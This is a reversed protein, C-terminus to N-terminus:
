FFELSNLNKSKTIFMCVKKLQVNNEDLEDDDEDDAPTFKGDDNIGVAVLTELNAGLLGFNLLERTAELTEPVRSLCENLVVSRKSVKSLYQQLDNISFESKRWQTQYVLDM